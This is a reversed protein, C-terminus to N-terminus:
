VAKNISLCLCIMMIIESVFYLITAFSRGIVNMNYNRNYRIISNVQRIFIFQVIAIFFIMTQKLADKIM